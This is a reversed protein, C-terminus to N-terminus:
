IGEYSIRASHLKKSAGMFLRTREAPDDTREHKSLDEIACLLLLLAGHLIRDREDRRDCSDMADIVSRKLRLFREAKEPNGEPLSPTGFIRLAERCGEAIDFVIKM